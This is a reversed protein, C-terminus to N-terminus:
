PLLKSILRSNMFYKFFNNIPESILMEREFISRFKEARFSIVLMIQICNKCLHIFVFHYQRYMLENVIFM